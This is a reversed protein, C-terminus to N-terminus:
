AVKQGQLARCHTSSQSVLVMPLIAARCYVALRRLHACWIIYVAEHCPCLAHEVVLFDERRFYALAIESSHTFNTKKRQKRGRLRERELCSESSLLTSEGSTIGHRHVCKCGGNQVSKHKSGRPYTTLANFRTLRFSVSRRKTCCVQVGAVSM